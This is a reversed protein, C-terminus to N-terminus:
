NNRGYFTISRKVFYVGDVMAIEIPWFVIIADLDEM